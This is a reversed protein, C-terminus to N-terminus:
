YPAQKANLEILLKYIAQSIHPMYQELVTSSTDESLCDELPVRFVASDFVFM